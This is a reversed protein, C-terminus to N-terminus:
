LEQAKKQAALATKVTRWVEEYLPAASGVDRLTEYTRTRSIVSDFTGWMWRADAELLRRSEQNATALMTANTIEAAVYPDLLHNLLAFGVDKHESSQMVCAYDVYVLTGEIPLVFRLDARQRMLDFLETSWSLALTVEGSSLATSPDEVYDQVRPLQGLLRKQVDLLDERKQSSASHGLSRLTVGITARMDDLMMLKRVTKEGPLPTNAFIAEWNDPDRIPTDRNSVIGLGLLSWVYPLCHEMGPDFPPNRFVAPVYSLNGIRDRQMLALRGSQILKEVAYSSPFIVDYRAGRSLRDLLEENTKYTEVTAKNGTQTEFSSLTSQPLYDPFAAVRLSHGRPLPPLAVRQSSPKSCAGLLGALVGLLLSLPLVLSHRIFRVSGPRPNALLALRSPPFPRLSNNSGHGVSCRLLAGCIMSGSSPLNM